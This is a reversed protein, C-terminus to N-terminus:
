MFFCFLSKETSVKIRLKYTPIIKYCWFYNSLWDHDLICSVFTDYPTSVRLSCITCSFKEPFHLQHMRWVHRSPMYGVNYTHRNQLTILYCFSTVWWTLSTVSTRRLRSLLCVGWWTWLVTWSSTMRFSLCCKDFQGRQNSNLDTWLKVVSDTVCNYTVTYQYPLSLIITKMRLTQCFFLLM